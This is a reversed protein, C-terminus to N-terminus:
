AVVLDAQVKRRAEPVPREVVGVTWGDEEVVPRPERPAMVPHGRKRAWAPVDPQHAVVLEVAARDVTREARPRRVVRGGEAARRCAEDRREALHDLRPGAEVARLHVAGAAAHRPPRPDGALLGDVSGVHEVIERPVRQRRRRRHRRRRVDLVGPERLGVAEDELYWSIPLRVPHRDHMGTPEGVLCGGVARVVATQVQGLVVEPERGTEVPVERWGVRHGHAPELVAAPELRQLHDAHDIGVELAVLGVAGGVRDLPDLDLLWERAGVAAERHVAGNRRM